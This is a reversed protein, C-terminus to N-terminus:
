DSWLQDAKKAVQESNHVPKWKDSLTRHHQLASRPKRLSAHRQTAAGSTWPGPHDQSIFHRTHSHAYLRPLKTATNVPCFTSIQKPVIVQAWRGISSTTLAFLAAFLATATTGHAGAACQKTSCRVAQRIDSVATPCVPVTKKHIPHERLSLFSFSFSLWACPFNKM